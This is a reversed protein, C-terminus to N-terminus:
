AANAYADYISRVGIWCVLAGGIMIAALSAIAIKLNLFNYQLGAAIASAGLLVFTLGLTALAVFWLGKRIQGNYIQGLGSFVFSLVAAVGPHAEARQTNM